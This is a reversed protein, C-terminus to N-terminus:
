EIREPQSEDVLDLMVKEISDCDYDLLTSLDSSSLHTDGLISFFLKSAFFVDEKRQLKKFPKAHKKAIEKFEAKTYSGLLFSIYEQNYKYNDWLNVFATQLVDKTKALSYLRTVFVQKTMM